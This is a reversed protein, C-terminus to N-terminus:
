RRRGRMAPAKAKGKGRRPAPRPAPPPMYRPPPPAGGGVGLMQKLQAVVANSAGSPVLGAIRAAMAPTIGAPLGFQMAPNLGKQDFTIVFMPLQHEVKNVVVIGSQRKTLGSKDMLVAFVFM